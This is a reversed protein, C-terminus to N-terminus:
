QNNRNRKNNDNCRLRVNDKVRLVKLVGNEDKSYSRSGVTYVPSESNHNKLSSRLVELDNSKTEGTQTVASSFSGKEYLVYLMGWDGYQLVGQNRAAPDNVSTPQSEPGAVALGESYNTIPMMYTTVRYNYSVWMDGDVSSLVEYAPIGLKSEVEQQSMGPTLSSIASSTTFPPSVMLKNSTCASAFLLTAILLPFSLRKTM